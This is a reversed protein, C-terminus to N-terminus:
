VRLTSFWPQSRPHGIIMIYWWVMVTLKIHSCRAVFFLQHDSVIETVAADLVGAPFTESGEIHVFSNAPAESTLTLQGFLDKPDGYTTYDWKLDDPLLGNEFDKHMNPKPDSTSSPSILHVLVYPHVVM